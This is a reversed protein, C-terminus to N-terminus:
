YMARYLDNIYPFISFYTPGITYCRSSVIKPKWWAFLKCASSISEIIKHTWEENCVLHHFNQYIKELLLCNLTTNWFFSQAEFPNKLNGIETWIKLFPLASKRKKFKILQIINLNHAKPITPIIRSFLNITKSFSSTKFNQIM